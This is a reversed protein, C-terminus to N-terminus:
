FWKLRKFVVLMVTAITAMVGLLVFYGHPAKLEPIVDFNMGYIGALFSLPVFIATIVTLVQMTRNLRHSSISIYGDILDGTQHYYMLAMSCLRDYKEDLDNLESCYAPYSENIGNESMSSFMRNMYEFSRHLKRLEKKHSVLQELINDDNNDLLAAENDEVVREYELMWSLYRSSIMRFIDFVLIDPTSFEGKSAVRNISPSALHKTIVFKEGLLIAIQVPTFQVGSIESKNALGRIIFLHTNEIFEYKPPPRERCIDEVALPHIKYREYIAFEQESSVNDIDIWLWGDISAIDMDNFAQETIALLQNNESIQSITIM